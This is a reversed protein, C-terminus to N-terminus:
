ERALNDERILRLAAAYDTNSPKRPRGAAGLRELDAILDLAEAPVSKLSPMQLASDALVRQESTKSISPKM